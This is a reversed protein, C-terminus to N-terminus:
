IHMLLLCKFRTRVTWVGGTNHQKCKCNIKYWLTPGRARRHTHTRTNACNTMIEEFESAKINKITWQLVDPCRPSNSRTILGGRSEVYVASGSPWWPFKNTRNISLALSFPPFTPPARHHSFGSFSTFPSPFQPPPNPHLHLKWSKHRPVECFAHMRYNFSGEGWKGAALRYMLGSEASRGRGLEKGGWWWWWGRGLLMIAVGGAAGWTRRVWWM